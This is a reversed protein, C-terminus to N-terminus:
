ASHIYLEALCYNQTDLPPAFILINCSTGFQRCLSPANALSTATLIATETMDTWGTTPEDFVYVQPNNSNAVITNGSIAVSTGFSDLATQDSPTLKAVQTM